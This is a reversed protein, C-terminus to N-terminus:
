LPVIRCLILALIILAVLFVGAATGMWFYREDAMKMGSTLGADFGESYRDSRPQQPIAVINSRSVLHM